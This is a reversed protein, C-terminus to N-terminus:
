FYKGNPLVYLGVEPDKQPYRFQKEIFNRKCCNKCLYPLVNEIKVHLPQKRRQDVTLSRTVTEEEGNANIKTQPLPPFAALDAARCFAELFEIFQGQLHRDNDVDNMQTMMAMNFCYAADRTGFIDNVLPATTCFSEFESVNMHYKQGPLLEKGGFNEYIHKFVPLYAKLVNDAGENWCVQKRWQQGSMRAEYATRLNNNVMMEVAQAETQAEGSEFYKKLAM